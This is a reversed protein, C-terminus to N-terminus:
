VWFSETVLFEHMGCCENNLNKDFGITPLTKNFEYALPLGIYGLGIVAIKKRKESRGKKLFSCGLSSAAVGSGLASLFARRDIM